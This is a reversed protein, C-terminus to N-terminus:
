RFELKSDSTVTKSDCVEGRGWRFSFSVFRFQRESNHKETLLLFFIMRYYTFCFWQYTIISLKSKLKIFRWSSEEKFLCVIFNIIRVWRNYVVCRENALFHVEETILCVCVSVAFTWFRLQCNVGNSQM